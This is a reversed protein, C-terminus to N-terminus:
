STEKTALPFQTKGLGGIEDKFAEQLSIHCVTKGATGQGSSITQFISPNPNGRNFCTPIKYPSIFGLHRPTVKNSVWVENWSM